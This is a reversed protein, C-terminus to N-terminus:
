DEPNDFAGDSDDSGTFQMEAQEMKPASKGNMYLYVENRAASIAEHLEEFFTYGSVKTIKPTELSISGTTVFKAGQLIYGENEDTGVIKIGHINFLATLEHNQYEDLTELNSGPFKFADDIIALHVNMAAFAEIMDEHVIASGKRSTIKDGTGPGKVIEYGYNCLEEKITANTIEIPRNEDGTIMKSLKEAAVSFSEASISITRKAM